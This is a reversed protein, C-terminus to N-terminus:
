GAIETATILSVGRENQDNDSNLISRNIAHSTSEALSSLEIYTTYTVPSTTNPSDMWRMTLMSPTTSENDDYGANAIGVLRSGAGTTLGQLVTETGGITQLFGYVSDEHVESFMTVEVLIKSSTKKPTIQVAFNAVGDTISTKTNTSISTQIHPVDTQHSQIQVISGPVYLYGTGNSEMDITADQELAIKSTDQIQIGSTSTVLMGGSSSVSIQGSFSSAGNVDLTGNVELEQQVAVKGTSADVTLKDTNVALDGTIATNGTATVDVFTADGDAAVKALATGSTNQWQQLDATQASIAKATLTIDTKSQSKLPQALTDRAVGINRVTITLGASPLDGQLTITSGSIVYDTTPRQVVGDIDVIFARDDSSVPAESFTYAAQASVTTFTEVSLPTPSNYLSLGDVYQKNVAEAEATPTKINKIPSNAADWKEDTLDKSLANTNGADDAEQAVYLLGLAAQDLDAATLVSGDSFDAVDSQFASKGKPTTRQILVVVGSGPASTFVVNTSIVSWGSAQNVGDLSVTIHTTSLYDFNIAFTDQGSAVYRSYSYPSENSPM